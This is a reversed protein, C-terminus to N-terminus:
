KSSCMWYRHLLLETFARHIFSSKFIGTLRHRYDIFDRQIIIKKSSLFALDEYPAKNTWIESKYTQINQFIKKLMKM